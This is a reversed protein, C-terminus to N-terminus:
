FCARVGLEGLHEELQERLGPNLGDFLAWCGYERVVPAGAPAAPGAKPGSAVFGRGPVIKGVCGLTKKRPRKRERDWVSTTKYVYYHGRVQHIETCRPREYAKIEDPVPM